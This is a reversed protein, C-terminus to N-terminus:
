ASTRSPLESLWSMITDQALRLNNVQCHADAGTWKEFRVLRSAPQRVAVQEYLDLAQRAAEFPESEGVIALLPVDVCRTNVVGAGAALPLIQGIWDIGFQWRYKAVAAETVPSLRGALRTAVRALASDRRRALVAPMGRQLLLAIDTVPTSAM